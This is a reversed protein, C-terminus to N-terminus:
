PQPQNLVRFYDTLVTKLVEKESENAWLPYKSGNVEWTFSADLELFPWIQEALAKHATNGALDFSIKTEKGQDMVQIQIPYNAGELEFFLYAEEKKSPFLIAPFFSPKQSDIQRKGHRFIEMEAEQRLERAYHISRLNLFFLKDSNAIKFSGDKGTNDARYGDFFSLLLVIALASGLFIKLVKILDPSLVPSQSTM